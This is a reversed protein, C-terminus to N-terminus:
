ALALQEEPQVDDMAVGVVKSVGREQMTVGYLTSAAQMTLKNHTIVLFQSDRSMSKVVEVFRVTNPDDLPADVEDLICFPSAKTHFLSVLLAIATLAKEGGSLLMLNQLRKGPPRAVIEIGSELLDEDDLLRMEAEGGGFLQQFVEGFRQNVEAFTARFRENSTANIERITQKLSAVSAVVDDRQTLLFTHREEQETHEQAALLNVPGIRELAARKDALQAELTELEALVAVIEAPLDSMLEPPEAHLQEGFAQRLHLSENALGALEIRRAEAEDRVRENEARLVQAEDDHTRLAERQEDLRAQAALVEDQSGARATLAAALELEGTGIAALLEERRRQLQAEEDAWRLLQEESQQTERLLRAADAEHARRREELLHLHGRRQAGATRLEERESRAGTLQAQVADFRSELGHHEEERAGMRGRAEAIREGLAAAEAALREAEVVLAIGQKELRRVREAVDEQRAQSVALQRHLDAIAAEHAQVAQARTTRTEVAAALTAAAAAAVERARPLKRDLASKEQKRALVGPHRREGELHLLGGRWYSGERSVFAVGPHAAALRRAAAEGEVLFAPPLAAALEAPLGLAERLSGALAPDDIEIATSSAPALPTVLVAATRGADGIGRLAAALALPDTGAPVVVADALTAFYFDLGREWGEPAQVQEVLLEPRELGAGALAALLAQRGSQHAEELQRLVELRQEITRVREDADQREHTAATERQLAEALAERAGERERERAALSSGLDGVQAAALELAERAQALEHAHEATEEDLHTRRLTARELELQRGHLDTRLADLGGMSALLQQRLQEVQAEIEQLQRVRDHLATEDGEVAGRASDLEADLAARRTEVEERAQRKRALEDRREAAIGAGSALREAVQQLNERAGVLFAQRGEIRAGLEADKRHLEGLEAALEDARQRGAAVAAERQHLGAVLEAQRSTRAQLEDQLARERGVLSAWRGALVRALLERHEAELAQYRRAAAAQRKLGRVARDVESLVDDLRMLNATAEELKVEAIRRRERYRTVGAAEELLRRREQPKGSLILGIKGQEIISYTRIGLGTGMLLDRIEKLTVRKGNLRYQGEGGRFVRRSITLRGDESGVFGPDTDLTLSVEAMGLPKRREAGNFIVDEMTGSRLTKASQEGLVWSIADSLNSKGCGNPGVIATIGEAFDLSVPDVFSKFGSIELRRLKLM